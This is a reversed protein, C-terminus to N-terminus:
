TAEISRRSSWRSRTASWRSTWRTQRGAERVMLETLPGSALEHSYGTAVCEFTTDHFALIFHRYGSFQEPRHCRHVSNMRELRRIWSSERVELASYPRLGKSALPHGAFAEDNPPGFISAYPCSFRVIAAPEGRTDPGVVRAAIGDWGPPTDELFYAVSLCHEGALVIPCPAGVSSQPLDALEIVNDREEVVYVTV